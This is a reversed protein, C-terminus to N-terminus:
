RAWGCRSSSSCKQLLAWRRMQRRLAQLAGPGRLHQAAIQSPSSDAAADAATGATEDGIGGEVVVVVGSWGM